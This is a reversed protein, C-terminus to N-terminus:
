SYRRLHNLMSQVHTIPIQYFEFREYLPKVLSHIIEILNDDVQKLSVQATLIVKPDHITPGVETLRPMPYDVLLLSREELGTFRCRIAIQEVGEFTAALRRAFLLGETIKIIPVSNTFETGPASGRQQALEGDEIYGRITYLKGDLSVKWFDAHSPDNWIPNAVPRGVWAEVGDEYPYPAWEPVSMHLFTPWGSLKVEQAIRLRDLLETLDEAPIAGALSFGIEYYGYPFRAQSDVPLLDSVLEIWREYADSCYRELSEIPKTSLEQDEAQGSVISRIADLMDERRARICRDLLHRWEDATHPEESRPGPKRVYCRHQSVGADSQSRRSMVPVDSGPVRIIPHTIDSRPHVINYLQCHFEPEAYRRITSNVTDQTIEPIHPPRAASQLTQGNEQFGLVIHGGGHNALAIAAKALTAKDREEGLNLWSKYELDLDEIPYIIFRELQLHLYDPPQENAM